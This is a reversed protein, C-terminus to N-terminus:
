GNCPPNHKDILDKEIQLRAEERSEGYVCKCNAGKSKFCPADHHDDFRQSMDETQGVYIKTHSYGGENNQARKTIFYVAGYDKNFNTDWSYATFEYQTGSKGAFTVTGYKSM